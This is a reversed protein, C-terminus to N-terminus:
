DSEMSARLRTTLHIVDARCDLCEIRDLGRDGTFVGGTGMCAVPFRHGTAVEVGKGGSTGYCRM